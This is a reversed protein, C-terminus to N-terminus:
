KRVEKIAEKTAIALAEGVDDVGPAIHDRVDVRMGKLAEIDEKTTLMMDVSINSAAYLTELMMPTITDVMLNSVSAKSYPVGNADKHVALLRMVEDDSIDTLTMCDLIVLKRVDDPLEKFEALCEAQKKNSPIDAERLMSVWLRLHEDGLTLSEALEADFDRRHHSFYKTFPLVFIVKNYVLWASVGKFGKLEIM